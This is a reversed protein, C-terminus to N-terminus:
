AYAAGEAAFEVWKTANNRSRALVKDYEHALKEAVDNWGIKLYERRAGESLEASLAPSLSINIIEDALRRTDWYDFRMVNHLVEGVGSQKSILLATDSHAAELATIGFPESISPMVFIDTVGYLERQRSGRVFGLFIVRDSIGLDASLEIIQDRQDGSSPLLLLLKPNKSMALAVSELLYTIGKQATLRVGGPSIITYGQKKLEKAYAYDNVDVVIDELDSPEFSNHVVEIKDPPIHYERIIIDKTLQSVALIRDAM